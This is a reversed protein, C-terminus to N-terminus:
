WSLRKCQKGKRRQYSWYAGGRRLECIWRTPQWRDVNINAYKFAWIIINSNIKFHVIKLLLHAKVWCLICSDDIGPPFWDHVECDEETNILLCQKELLFVFVGFRFGLPDLPHPLCPQPFLPVPLPHTVQFPLFLSFNILTYLINIFYMCM